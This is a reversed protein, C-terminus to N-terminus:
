EVYPSTVVSNDAAGDYSYKGMFSKVSPTPRGLIIFANILLKAASSPNGVSEVM